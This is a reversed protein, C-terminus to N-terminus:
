TVAKALSRSIAISLSFFDHNSIMDEMFHASFQWSNLSQCADGRNQFLGTQSQIGMVNKLPTDWGKGAINSKVLPTPPSQGSTKVPQHNPVHSKNKGDYQSDWSVKM